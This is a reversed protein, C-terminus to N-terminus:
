PSPTSEPDDAPDEQAVAEGGMADALQTRHPQRPRVYAAFEATGAGVM